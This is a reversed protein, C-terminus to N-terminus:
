RILSNLVNVGIVVIGVVWVPVIYLFGGLHKKTLWGSERRWLLRVGLDMLIMAVGVSGMVLADGLRLLLSGVGAVLASAVILIVTLPRM